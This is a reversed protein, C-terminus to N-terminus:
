DHQQVISTAGGSLLPLKGAMKLCTCIARNPHPPAIVAALLIAVVTPVRLEDQPRVLAPGAKSGSADCSSKRINLDPAVPQAEWRVSVAKDSPCQGDVFPDLWFTM